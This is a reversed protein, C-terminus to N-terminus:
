IFSLQMLMKPAKAAPEFTVGINWVGAAGRGGFSIAAMRFLARVEVLHVAARKLLIGSAARWQAGHLICPLDTNSPILM